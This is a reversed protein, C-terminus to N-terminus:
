LKESSFYEKENNWVVPFAECCTRAKCFFCELCTQKCNMDVDYYDPVDVIGM